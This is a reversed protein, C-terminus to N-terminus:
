ANRTSGRRRMKAPATGNNNLLGAQRASICCPEGTESDIAVPVLTNTGTPVDARRDAGAQATRIGRAAGDRQGAPLRTARHDPGQGAVMALTLFGVVASIRKM